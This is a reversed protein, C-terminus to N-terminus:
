TTYHKKTVISIKLRGYISNANSNWAFIFVRVPSKIKHGQFSLEMAEDITYEDITDDLFSM